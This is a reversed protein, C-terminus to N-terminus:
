EETDERSTEEIEPESEMESKGIGISRNVGNQNGSIVVDEGCSPSALHVNLKMRDGDKLGTQYSKLIKM